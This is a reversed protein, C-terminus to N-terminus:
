MAVGACPQCRTYCRHCNARQRSRQASWCRCSLANMLTGYELQFDSLAAPRVVMARCCHHQCSECRSARQRCSTSNPDCTTISCHADAPPLSTFLSQCDISRQLLVSEGAADAAWRREAAARRGTYWSNCGPVGAAVLGRVCACVSSSLQDPGAVDRQAQPLAAHATRAQAQLVACGM